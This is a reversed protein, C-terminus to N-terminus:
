AAAGQAAAHRDGVIEALALIALMAIALLAIAAGLGTWGWWGVVLGGLPPGILAGGAGFQTLLGNAAAIQPSDAASAGALAPLRAFVLPPAIGSCIMLLVAASGSVLLAVTGDGVQRFVILALLASLVLGIGGLRIVAGSGRLGRHLLRAALGTGILTALSALATVLAAMGISAGTEEILFTPLLMTLSCVYVTYFGFSLTSLWAAARPLRVRSREGVPEAPLARAMAMMALPALAWLLFIGRVSLISAALGTIASGFAVGVPVFTSWLALAAGRQRDSAITAILTPAATVVLLYGIGEVARAVYLWTAGPAFAEGLGAAALLALGIALFRRTGGHGIALGAAFGLAGGGVELLSILLGVEALSLGFTVRLMPALSSFKALQAAALVGVLWLTFIQVWRRKM